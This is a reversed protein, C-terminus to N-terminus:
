SVDFTDLISHECISNSIFLEDKLLFMMKDYLNEKFSYVREKLPGLGNDRNYFLFNDFYFALSTLTSHFKKNLIRDNKYHPEL